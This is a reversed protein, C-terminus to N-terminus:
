RITVTGAAIAPAPAPQTAAAPVVGSGLAQRGGAYYQAAALRLYGGDDDAHVSERDACIQGSSLGDSTCLPPPNTIGDRMEDHPATSGPNGRGFLLGVIGVARLEDVHEFFYEARNDQYHGNTNNMTRFVQNGVPIQWVMAPKGAAANVAAMYREWRHFNPLSVNLRDWWANGRGMVEKYFGADRDAVDTFVLDFTSLGAPTAPLVSTGSLATFRGVQTGADIVDLRPDTSTSVDHGSAWASVHTALLVNPAYVDRLHLLAWHFGQYTDPFGHVEPHGSTGVAARLLAPDTGTGSCFGFCRAPNLVAHMAYGSLDPEVHVITAKGYGAIGDHTGTGLRKLLLIYDDFYRAMTAAHNLNALDRQAENCGNCPGDSQLLMYYTFVPVAGLKSASNAYLLPFQGRTNWTAWGSGTNVGGALYQYTYDWPVGSEPVWGQLGSRDPQASLGIAFHQPLSPPVAASDAAAPASEASVRRDPAAVFRFAAWLLVALVSVRLTAWALSAARSGSRRGTSHLRTGQSAPPATFVIGLFDGECPRPDLGSGLTVSVNHLAEYHHRRRYRVSM